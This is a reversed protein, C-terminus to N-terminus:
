RTILTRLVALILAQVTTKQDIAQQKLAWHDAEPIRIGVHVRRGEIKKM